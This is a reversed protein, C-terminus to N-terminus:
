VQAFFCLYIDIKTDNDKNHNNHNNIIIILGPYGCIVFTAHLEAFSRIISSYFQVSGNKGIIDPGCIPRGTEIQSFRESRPFCDQGSFSTGYELSRVFIEILYGFPHLSGCLLHSFHRKIRELFKTRQTENTISILKAEMEKINNLPMNFPGLPICHEVLEPSLLNLSSCMNASPTVGLAGIHLAQFRMMCVRVVWALYETRGLKGCIHLLDRKSDRLLGMASEILRLFEEFM